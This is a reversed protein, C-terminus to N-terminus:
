GAPGTGGDSLQRRKQQSLHLRIPTLVVSPTLLGFGVLLTPPRASILHAAAVGTGAAGALTAATLLIFWVPHAELLGTPDHLYPTLLRWAAAVGAVQVLVAADFLVQAPHWGSTPYACYSVAVFGTMFATLPFLLLVAEAAALIRRSRATM